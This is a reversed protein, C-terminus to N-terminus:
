NNWVQLKRRPNAFCNRVSKLLHLPDSFFFIERNPACPNQLKHKVDSTDAAMLRFFRRYASYGDLTTGVVRFGCRELHFIAEYFLPVIQDGHTSQCPFTAYPFKLNTFLGRVMFVLVSTALAPSNSSNDKLHMELQSLHENIDGLNVFGVLEGSFKDYVLDEKIHMEDGLICVHKQFEKLSAVRSDEMLIKDIETCFGATTSIHYTYDRLTRQSPLKICGSSRLLDYARPSQHRLYLCWKVMTPHWRFGRSSTAEQLQQKWFLQQFSGEAFSDLIKHENEKAICLLDGHFQENLKVNNQKTLEVIRKELTNIKHKAVKVAYKQSKIRRVMQSTTLYRHNVHSSPGEPNTNPVQKKKKHTIARLVIRYKKCISCCDEWHPVLLLCDVSRITLITSKELRAVVEGTTQFFFIFYHTRYTILSTACNITVIVQATKFNAKDSKVYILISNIEIARVSM